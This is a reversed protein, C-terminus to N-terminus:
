TYVLLGADIVSLDAQRNYMFNPYLKFKTAKHLKTKQNKRYLQILIGGHATYKRPYINESIGIYSLNQKPIHHVAFGFDIWAPQTRHVEIPFHTIFGTSVDFIHLLDFETQAVTYDTFKGDYVSLQDYFTLKDGQLSRNMYSVKVAPTFTFKRFNGFKYSLAFDTNSYKLAPNSINYMANIGLGLRKIPFDLTFSNVIQNEIANFWILQTNLTFRYVNKSGAFAPNLYIANSSINSFVPDQAKLIITNTFFLIFIIPLIKKM